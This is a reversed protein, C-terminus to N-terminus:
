VWDMPHRCVQLFEYELSGIEPTHEYKWKATEPLSMLISEVKGNTKLGFVTGRDYILNFEVYRGRRILQWEKQLESYEEHKHKNIIPTYVKMIVDLQDKCFKYIDNPPRDNLYDFFIGGLGRTEKRHPIYFYNDAWKKFMKYYTADYKDCSEKLICHFHKMDDKDIYSPTIDVGGGFWWRINDPSNRNELEFYRYNFHITPCFPNHPHIVSSIGCAFFKTEETINSTIMSKNVGVNTAANLADKPMTGHVVSLNVGAKEFVNGNSLTHSIGGGGDNERLWIDEIFKKNGGDLIEIDNTIALQAERCLKEFKYRMPYNRNPKTVDKIFSIYPKVGNSQNFAEKSKDPSNFTNLPEESDFRKMMSINENITYLFGSDGIGTYFFTYGNLPVTLSIAVVGFYLIKSM